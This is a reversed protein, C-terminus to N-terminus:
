LEPLITGDRVYVAVEGGDPGITELNKSKLPTLSLETSVVAAIQGITGLIIIIIVIIIFIIITCYDTCYTDSLSSL